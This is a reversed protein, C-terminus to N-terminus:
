LNALLAADDMNLFTDAKETLFTICDTFQEANQSNAAYLALQNKLLTLVPKNTKCSQFKNLLIKAANAVQEATKGTLAPMVVIYDKAFDDWTEKSIGGGRREAKPLNAIKTWDLEGYPFTEATIKEDDNIIERARDIQIQKVAEMVLELEKGGKKFQEILGEVSILPLEIELTPRKTFEGTPKGDVEIAVKRFSFKVPTKDVNKDFNVEPAVQEQAQMNEQDNM